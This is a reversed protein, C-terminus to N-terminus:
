LFIFYYLVFMYETDIGTVINNESELGNWVLRGQAHYDEILTHLICYMRMTQYVKSLTAKKYWIINRKSQSLTFSHKQKDMMYVPAYRMWVIRTSLKHIHSLLTEVLVYRYGHVAYLVCNISCTHNHNHTFHGHRAQYHSM